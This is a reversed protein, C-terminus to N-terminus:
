GLSDAHEKIRLLVAAIDQIDAEPGLLFRHHLALASRACLDETVPCHDQTYDHGPIQSCLPQRYLPLAYLTSLPLGEAEAAEVLAKRSCGFADPDIRLCYLHYARRTMREDGPQPTLGEVGALAATLLDAMRARHRTQDELRGLQAGLLAAQFETMRANTGIIAHEFWAGGKERGCNTISRCRDALAEDDTLICGGEAASLNKSQQFSFVGCDGLAGTGKGKWQSGWSHCADEIVRLGHARAIDNIRDMDAVRSGFHVPMIAKTRPTIAAEILDPDLCWSADVDVFIPTAGVRAVTMATAVFTYPPVIVEDGAGIGLAMMAVEAAVTGSTCTVCHKAGQFAAYDHEFQRVREGYFWQGSEFVANLAVREEEGVIPWSPWPKSEPRIPEGGHLALVSSSLTSM